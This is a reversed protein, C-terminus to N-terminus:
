EIENMRVISVSDDSHSDNDDTETNDSDSVLCGFSDQLYKIIIMAAQRADMDSGISVEVAEKIWKTRLAQDEFDKLHSSKPIALHAVERTNCSRIEM